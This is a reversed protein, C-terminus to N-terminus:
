DRNLVSFTIDQVGAQACAAMVKEVYHAPCERDARIVARYANNAQWRPAIVLTLNELNEHKVEELTVFGKKEDANWRVNLLAEARSTEKKTSNPAVPLTIARDSRLVSASTIMIFFVLLCLLVDVMPAIQFELEDQHVHRRM